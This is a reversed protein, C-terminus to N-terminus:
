ENEGGIEGYASEIECQCEACELPSGEWHVECAGLHWSASRDGMKTHEVVSRFNSRVCGFCLVDGGHSLFYLPYGGPWAFPGNRLATKIDKTTM